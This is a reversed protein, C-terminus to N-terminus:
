RMRRLGATAPYRLHPLGILNRFLQMLEYRSFNFQLDPLELDPPIPM